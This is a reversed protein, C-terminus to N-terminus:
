VEDVIARLCAPLRLNCDKGGHVNSTYFTITLSDAKRPRAQQDGLMDNQSNMADGKDVVGNSVEELNVAENLGASEQSSFSVNEMEGALNEGDDVAYLEQLKDEIWKQRQLFETKTWQQYALLDSTIGFRASKRDKDEKYISKKKEFSKNSAEINVQGPLITLNGLM